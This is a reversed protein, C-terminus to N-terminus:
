GIMYVMGRGDAVLRDVFARARQLYHLVYDEDFMWGAIDAVTIQGLDVSIEDMEEPRLARGWPEWCCRDYDMIVDGEFMRYAPRPEAAPTCPRTAVQLASWARDLYLLDREPVLQVFTAVGSSAHPEMGWADALPDSSLFSRPDGIAQETLHGDFAYAYYRIGM